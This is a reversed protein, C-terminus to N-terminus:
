GVRAKAIQPFFSGSRPPARFPQTADDGGGIRPFSGKAAPQAAADDGSSSDDPPDERAPKGGNLISEEICREAAHRLASSWHSQGSQVLVGRVRGTADWVGVVGDGSWALLARLGRQFVMGKVSVPQRRHDVISTRRVLRVDAEGRVSGNGGGAPEKFLAKLCWVSLKTAEDSVFLVRKRPDFSAAVAPSPLTWKAFLRVGATRPRVDYVAITGKSGTVSLLASKGLFTISTIDEMAGGLYATSLPSPTKSFTTSDFYHLTTQARLSSAANPQTSDFGITEDFPHNDVRPAHNAKLLLRRSREVSRGYRSKAKPSSKGRRAPKKHKPGDEWHVGPELRVGGADGEAAGRGGGKLALAAMARKKMATGDLLVGGDCGLDWTLEPQGTQEDVRRLPDFEVCFVGTDADWVRLTAADATAVLGLADSWECRKSGKTTSIARVCVPAKGHHAGYILAFIGSEHLCVLCGRRDLHAMQVVESSSLSHTQTLALSTADRSTVKGNAHGVFLTEGAADAALCTIEPCPAFSHAGTTAGTCLSWFRVERRDNEHAVTAVRQSSSLVAVSIVASDDAAWPQKKREKNEWALFQDGAVSVLVDKGGVYCCGPCRPKGVGALRSPKGGMNGSGILPCITQFCKYTRIDWTKVLYGEDMTVAQPTGPIAIVDVIPSTHPLYADCLEYAPEQTGTDTAICFATNDSGGCIIMSHEPMEAFCLIGRPGKKVRDVLVWTALDIFSLTGDLAASAIVPRKALALLASVASGPHCGAVGVRPRIVPFDCGASHFSPSTVEGDHSAKFPHSLSGPQNKISPLFNPEGLHQKPVEKGSILELADYGYVGGDRTGAVILSGITALTTNSATKVRFARVVPLDVVSSRANRVVDGANGGEFAPFGFGDAAQKKRASRPAAGLIDAPRGRYSRLSLDSCCAVIAPGTSAPKASWGSPSSGDDGFYVCSAIFRKSAERSGISATEEVCLTDPNVVHIKTGTTAVMRCSSPHDYYRLRRIGFVPTDSAHVAATDLVSDKLSPVVPPTKAQGREVFFRLNTGRRNGAGAPSGLEAGPERDHFASQSDDTPAVQPSVVQAASTTTDFYSERKGYNRLYCVFAHWSLANTGQLDMQSFACRLDNAVERASYAPVPPACVASAKSWNGASRDAKGGHKLVRLFQAATREQALTLKEVMKKVVPLLLGVFQVVSLESGTKGRGGEWAVRLAALDEEPVEKLVHYMSRGGGAQPGGYHGADGM